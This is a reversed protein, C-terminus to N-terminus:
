ACKISVKNCSARISSKEPGIINCKQAELGLEARKNSSLWLKNFPTKGWFLTLYNMNGRRISPMVNWKTSRLSM